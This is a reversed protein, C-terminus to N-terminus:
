LPSLEVVYVRTTEAVKEGNQQRYQRAANEGRALMLMVQRRSCVLELDNGGCGLTVGGPHESLRLPDLSALELYGYAGDHKGIAHRARLPILTHGAHIVLPAVLPQLKDDSYIQQLSTKEFAWQRLYDRLVLRLSRDIRLVEGQRLYLDTVNGAIPDYVPMMATVEGRVAAMKTRRM